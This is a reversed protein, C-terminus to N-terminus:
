PKERPVVVQMRRKLAQQQEIERRLDDIYKDKDELIEELQNM